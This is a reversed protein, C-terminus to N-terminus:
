KDEEKTAVWLDILIFTAILGLEPDDTHWACAVGASTSVVFAILDKM